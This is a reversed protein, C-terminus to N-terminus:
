KFQNTSENNGRDNGIQALLSNGALGIDCVDKLANFSQIQQHIRHARPGCIGGRGCFSDLVAKGNCAKGNCAKGEKQSRPHEQMGDKLHVTFHSIRFIHAKCQACM